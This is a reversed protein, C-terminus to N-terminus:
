AARMEDMTKIGSEVKVTIFSNMGRGTSGYSGLYIIQESFAQMLTAPMTDTATTEAASAITQGLTVPDGAGGIALRLEVVQDISPAAALTAGATNTGDDYLFEYFGSGGNDSRILLRPDTSAGATGIHLLALNPTLITGREVMKIYITFPLDTPTALFPASLTEAARSTAIYSSVGGVDDEFQAFGAYISSAGDGTYGQSNDGDAVGIGASISTDGNGVSGVLKVRYLGGGYSEAGAYTIAAGGSAGQTGVVGTTLDFWVNINGGSGGFMQIYCWDRTNARVFFSVGYDADATMTQAQYVLATGAGNNEVIEDLTATGDPGVAQNAVAAESSTNTWDVHTLDEPQTYENTVAPELLGTPTERVGDGDLDVWETRWTNAAASDFIGDEGVANATGSRTFTLGPMQNGARYYFLSRSLVGIWNGGDRRRLRVNAVSYRPDYWLDPDPMVFDHAVLDCPYSESPKSLSPFYELAAGRLGAALMEELQWPQGDYALRGVLDRAVGPISVTRRFSGDPSEWTYNLEPKIPSRPLRIKAALYHMSVVGNETVRFAADHKIPSSM